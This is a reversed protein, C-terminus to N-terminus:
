VTPHCGPVGDCVRRLGSLLKLVPVGQGSQVWGGWCGLALLFGLHWSEAAAPGPQTLLKRCMGPQPSAPQTPAGSLSSSAAGATPTRPTGLESGMGAPSSHGADPMQAPSRPGGCRAAQTGLSTPVIGCPPWSPSPVGSVPLPSQSAPAGTYQGSPGGQTTAAALRPGSPFHGWGLPCSLPCPPLRHLHGLPRAPLARACVCVAEKAKDESIVATRM